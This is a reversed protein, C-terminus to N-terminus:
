VIPRRYKWFIKYSSQLSWSGSVSHPQDPQFISKCLWFVPLKIFILLLVNSISKPFGEEGCSSCMVCWVDCLWCNAPLSYICLTSGTLIFIFSIFLGPWLAMDSINLQLLVELKVIILRYCGAIVPSSAQGLWYQNPFTEFIGGWFILPSYM